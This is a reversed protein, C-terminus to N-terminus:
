LRFTMKLPSVQKKLKTINAECSQLAKKTDEVVREEYYIDKFSKLYDQHKEAFM